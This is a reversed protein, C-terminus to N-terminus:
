HADYGAWDPRVYVNALWHALHFLLGAALPLFSIVMWGPTVTGTFTKVVVSVIGVLCLACMKNETLFNALRECKFAFFNAFPDFAVIAAISVAKLVKTVLKRM